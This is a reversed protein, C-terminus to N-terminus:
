HQNLEQVKFTKQLALAQKMQISDAVLIRMLIAGQKTPTTLDYSVRNVTSMRLKLHQKGGVKNNKVFFPQVNSGYFALCCYQMSDPLEGTILIDKNSADYFCVSYIFDPNPLVVRRLKADTKPAHIVTNLPKESRFKAIVFILNPLFAIFLYQAVFAIM